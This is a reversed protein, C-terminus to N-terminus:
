EAAGYDEFKGDKDFSMWSFFGRYGSGVLYIVNNSEMYEKIDMKHSGFLDGIDHSVSAHLGISHLFELYREKDTKQTSQNTETM